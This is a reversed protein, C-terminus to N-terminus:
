ACAPLSGKSGSQGFSQEPLATRLRNEPIRSHREFQSDGTDLLNYQHLKDTKVSGADDLRTIREGTLKMKDHLDKCNVVASELGSPEKRGGGRVSACEYRRTHLTAGSPPCPVLPLLIFRRFQEHRGKADWQISCTTSAMGGRGLTMGIGDDFYPSRIIRDARTSALRKVSRKPIRMMLTRNM